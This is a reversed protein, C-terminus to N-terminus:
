FFIYIGHNGSYIYCYLLMLVSNHTQSSLWFECIDSRFLQSKSFSFWTPTHPKGEQELYTSVCCFIHSIRTNHYAPSLSAELLINRRTLSCPLYLDWKRVHELVQPIKPPHGLFPHLPQITKTFIGTFPYATFSYMSICFPSGDVGLLTHEWKGCRTNTCIHACVYVSM